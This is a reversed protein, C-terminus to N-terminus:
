LSSLMHLAHWFRSTCSTPLYTWSRKIPSRVHVPVRSYMLTPSKPWHISPSTIDVYSVATTSFMAIFYTKSIVTLKWCIVCSPFTWFVGPLKKMGVVVQSTFLESILLTNICNDSFISAKQPCFLPQVMDCTFYKCNHPHKVDKPLRYTWGFVSVYWLSSLRQSCKCNPRNSNETNRVLRYSDRKLWNVDIDDYLILM